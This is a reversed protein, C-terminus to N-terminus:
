GISAEFWKDKQSANFRSCIGIVDNRVSKTKASPWPAWHLTIEDEEGGPVRVSVRVQHGGEFPNESEFVIETKTIEASFEESVFNSFDQSMKSVESKFEDKTGAMESLIEQGADTFAGNFFHHFVASKTPFKRKGTLGILDNYVEAFEEDNDLDVCFSESMGHLMVRAELLSKILGTLFESDKNCIHPFLARVDGSIGYFACELRGACTNKDGSHVWPMELPDITFAYEEAFLVKTIVVLSMALDWTDYEPIAGVKQLYSLAKM